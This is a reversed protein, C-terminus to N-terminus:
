STSNQSLVDSGVQKLNQFALTRTYMSHLAVIYLVKSFVTGSRAQCAAKTGGRRARGGGEAGRGDM